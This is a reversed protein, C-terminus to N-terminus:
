KAATKTSPAPLVGALERFRKQLIPDKGGLAEPAVIIRLDNLADSVKQLEEPKQSLQAIRYACYYLHYRRDWLAGADTARGETEIVDRLVRWIETAIEYNQRAEPSDQQGKAEADQRAKEALGEYARALGYVCDLKMVETKKVEWPKPGGMEHYTKRADDFNGVALNLEAMDYRINEIQAAKDAIANQELWHSLREGLTKAQDVKRGALALSEKGGRRVCERVEDTIAKFMGRLVPGVEDPKAVKLFKELVALAEDQKGLRQLADIRLKLIRGRAEDDLDFKQEMKELIQLGDSPLDVEPFLCVDAASVYATKAWAMLQDKKAEPLGKAQFAYDAFVLLEQSVARARSIILGKDRTGLVQERFQELHCLPIWYKADPAHESGDLVRTFADAAEAFKKGRFLIMGYFFQQDPDEKLYKAVFWKLADEYAQRNEDTAEREYVEGLCSVALRASASAYQYNPYEDPVKRFLAGAQAKRDLERLCAAQSYLAAAYDKHQPGVKEAFKNFLDLAAEYDKAQKTNQAEDLAKQAKFWVQLPPMDEIKVTQSAGLLGESVWQVVMPWPNPKTRMQDLIAVGDNRMGEDNKQKGELIFSEAKVLPLAGGLTEAELKDGWVKIADDVAKRAQEYDGKRILTLPREYALRILLSQAARATTSPGDGKAPAARLAADALRGAQALAELAEKYKGLERYSLGIAMYAFWKASTRDSTRPTTYEQFATIADNLLDKRSREQRAPKFDAPLAWGLYYTVWAEDYKGERQWQKLQREVGTNAYKNRDAMSMRDIESLWATTDENIAKYQALCTRLLEVARTRDGGRRDTVELYDIDAKLWKEFVFTALDLRLKLLGLRLRDREEPKPGIPIAAIAKSLDEIAGEYLARAKKFSTEREGMNTNKLATQVEIAALAAKDGGAGGGRTGPTGAQGAAPAGAGQKELYAKQLTTLGRDQLGKLFADNSGALAFTIGACALLAALVAPVSVHRIIRM